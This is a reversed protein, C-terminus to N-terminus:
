AGERAARRWPRPPPADRRPSSSAPRPRASTAPTRPRGPRGPSSLPLPPPVGRGRRADGGPPVLVGCGWGLVEKSTVLYSTRGLFYQFYPKLYQFHAVSLSGSVYGRWSMDVVQPGM